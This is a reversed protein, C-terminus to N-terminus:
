ALAGFEPRHGLGAPRMKLVRRRDPTSLLELAVRSLDLLRDTARLRCNLLQRAHRQAPGRDAGTEIRMGAVRPQGARPERFGGSNADALSAVVEVCLRRQIDQDPRM